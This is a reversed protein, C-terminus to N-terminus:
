TLRTEQGYCGQFRTTLIFFMKPLTHMRAQEMRLLRRNLDTEKANPLLRNLLVQDLYICWDIGGGKADRVLAGNKKILNGNGQEAM